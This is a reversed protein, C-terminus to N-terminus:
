GKTRWFPFWPSPATPPMSRGLDWVGSQSLFRHSLGFRTRWKKFQHQYYFDPRDRKVTQFWGSSLWVTGLSGFGMIIVSIPMHGAIFGIVLGVPIWFAFAAMIAFLAESSSLGRLIPPEANIRDTLPAENEHSNARM